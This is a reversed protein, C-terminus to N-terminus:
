NEPPAPRCTVEPLDLTCARLPNGSADRQTALWIDGEPELTMFGFSSLTEASEIDPDGLQGATPSATPINDLATGANGAILQPPRGSASVFALTEALHIHGSLVFGYDAKLSGQTAAEYVANEVQFEGEKGELIGWVPRHTVLWAGPPAMEALVDFQRAYQSAEDPKVTEDSAEASDVVAFTVGNMTSVYPETFRQCEAQYPWPDLYAFWGEPNRGCTEHNGRMFLHPAAAFIPAAPAFFDAQWTEWNDGHPSGACGNNGAPCAAERYLYDGVHVILDPQWAAVSRAVQAFPWAAPDNCAQYAQVRGEYDDLRCGTDGIVAIRRIPDNPLPLEQGLITASDVGFPVTAECATVPLNKTPPARHDMPVAHGDIVIPPCDGDVLVRASLVGDPGFQLWAPPLSAAASAAAPTGVPTTEQALTLSPPAAVAAVLVFGLLVQKARSMRANTM